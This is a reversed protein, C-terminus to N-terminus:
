GLIEDIKRGLKEEILRDLLSEVREYDGQLKRYQQPDMPCGCNDCRLMDTPNLQGCAPCPRGVPRYSAGEESAYGHHRLLTGRIDIGESHVYRRAMASGPAWGALKALQYENMFNAAHTLRSHRLNHMSIRKNFSLAAVLESLRKNAAANEIREGWTNLFLYAEPDDKQPHAALWRELYRVGWEIIEAQRLRFANKGQRVRLTYGTDRREVDGIRLTSAEVYALAGEYSCAFFAKYCLHTEAQILRLAEEETLVDKKPTKKITYTYGKDYEGDGLLTEKADKDLPGHNKDLWRLFRRFTKWNTSKTEPKWPHEQFAKLLKLACAKTLNVSEACFPQMIELIGVVGYVYKTISRDSLEKKIAQEELFLLVYKVDKPNLPRELSALRKNLVQTTNHNM